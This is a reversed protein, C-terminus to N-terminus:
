GHQMEKRAQIRRKILTYCVTLVTQILSLLQWLCFVLGTWLILHITFLAGLSSLIEELPAYLVGDLEICASLLESFLTDLNM